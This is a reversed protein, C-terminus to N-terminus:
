DIGGTTHDTSVVRNQWIWSTTIRSRMAVSLCFLLRFLLFGEWCELRYSKVVNYTRDFCIFLLIGFVHSSPVPRKNSNSGLMQGSSLNYLYYVPIERERKRESRRGGVVRRGLRGLVLFSNHKKLYLYIYVVDVASFPLGKGRTCTSGSRRSKYSTNFKYLKHM